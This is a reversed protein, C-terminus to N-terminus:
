LYELPVNTSGRNIHVNVTSQGEPYSLDTTQYTIKGEATNIHRLEGQAPFRSNSEDNFTLWVQATSRITGSSLLIFVEVDDRVRRTKIQVKSIVRSM